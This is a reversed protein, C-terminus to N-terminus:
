FSAAGPTDTTGRKRCGNEKHQYLISVFSVCTLLALIEISIEDKVYRVFIINRM